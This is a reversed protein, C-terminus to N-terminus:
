KEYRSTISEYLEGTTLNDVNKIKEDLDKKLKNIRNQKTVLQSDIKEIYREYGKNIQNLENISDDRLSIVTKLSDVQNDRPDIDGPSKFASIVVIGALIGIILTIIYKFFPKKIM